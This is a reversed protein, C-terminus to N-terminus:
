SCSSCSSPPETDCRPARHRRNAHGTANPDDTLRSGPSDRTLRPPRPVHDRGPDPDAPRGDRDAGPDPPGPVLPDATLTLSVHTKPAIGELEPRGRLWNVANMLLDLNEPDIQISLNDASTGAPSSSWGRGPRAARRGPAPRDTVAVGVTSRAPRTTRPGEQRGDDEPRARGVVPPEDAPAPADRLEAGAPM